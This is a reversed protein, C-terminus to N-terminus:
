ITQDGLTAEVKIQTPGEYVEIYTFGRNQYESVLRDVLSQALAPGTMVLGAATTTLLLRKM